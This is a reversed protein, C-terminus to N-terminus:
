IDKKITDNFVAILYINNQINEVSHLWHSANFMDLTLFENSHPFPISIENTGLNELLKCKDIMAQYNVPARVIDYDIPDFDQEIWAAWFYDSVPETVRVPHMVTYTMADRVLNQRTHLHKYISTRVPIKPDNGTVIFQFDYAGLIGQARANEFFSDTFGRLFAPFNYSKLDDITLFKSGRLRLIENSNWPNLGKFFKERYFDLLSNCDVPEITIPEYRFKIPEM